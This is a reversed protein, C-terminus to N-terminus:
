STLYCQILHFRTESLYPPFYLTFTAVLNQPSSYFGWLILFIPISGAVEKAPTVTGAKKYM